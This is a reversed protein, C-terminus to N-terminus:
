THGGVRFFERIVMFHISQLNLIRTRPFTCASAIAYRACLNVDVIVVADTQFIRV